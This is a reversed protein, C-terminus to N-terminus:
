RKVLTAQGRFPADEISPPALDTRRLVFWGTLKKLVPDPQYREASSDGLVRLKRAFDDHVEHL